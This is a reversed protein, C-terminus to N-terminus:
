RGGGPPRTLSSWFWYKGKRQNLFNTLEVLEKPATQGLSFYRIEATARSALRVAALDLNGGTEIEQAALLLEQKLDETLAQHHQNYLARVLELFIGEDIKQTM